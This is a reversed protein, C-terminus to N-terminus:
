SALGENKINNINNINNMKANNNLSDFGPKTILNEFIESLSPKNLYLDIVEEKLHEIVHILYHLLKEADSSYIVLKRGDSLLKSIQYTNQKKLLAIISGYDRHGLELHIEQHEAYLKRLENVNGQSAIRGQHLVAITDCLQEIEDLHHSSVIVTKGNEKIRRIISWLQKRLMLDLDATPEDLILIDPNHVLSCAIDLRKQMGGSLNQALMNQHDQLEVLSLVTAINAKLAAKSLEYLSGFYELNERVTLDEYFSSKQTAFGFLHKMLQQNDYVSVFHTSPATNLLSDGIKFEVDGKDPQQFGILLELLTTKGAGSVGIVGFIEGRQVQFQVENLVSRSGFRKSLGRVLLLPESQGTM